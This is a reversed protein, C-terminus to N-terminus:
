GVASGLFNRTLDEARRFREPDDGALWHIDSFRRYWTQQHKGLHRSNRRVLELARRADYAGWLHAIVEKYGVAQRAERSLHPELAAVEAILGDAFMRKARANIRENLAPREWHLGILLSRYCDRRVGDTTHFSSYPRGALAHVELARVIRRADNAHRDAAYVPDVRQLEALLADGGERRYREELAARLAPDKPPGASLGELLAKSYLPSGGAVVPVKGRRDIDAIAAEAMTLWRALNCPESVPVCDVCHHPIAAREAPSPKATGIDMDRYVAMADANVIEGDCARALHLALATKGSATPGLVLILPIPM